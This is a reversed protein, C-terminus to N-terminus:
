RKGTHIIATHKTKIAKTSLDKKMNKTMHLIKLDKSVLDTMTDRTLFNNDIVLGKKMLANDIVLDKKMLTNDTVLHQRDGFGKEDFRQRDGFGKEDFRQRDGFGKEDFQQQDDFGKNDFRQRDGFGKDDFRKDHTQQQDYSRDGFGKDEFRKNSSKQDEQNKRNYSRNDQHNGYRKDHTRDEFKSGFFSQEDPQNEYRKDLPKDEFRTRGKDHSREREFSRGREHFKDEYNGGHQDSSKYKEGYRDPREIQYDNHPHTMKSSSSYKDHRSTRHEDSHRNDRQSDYSESHGNRHKRSSSRYKETTPLNATVGAGSIPRIGVFNGPSMPPTSANTLFNGPALNGPTNAIYLPNATTALPSSLQNYQGGITVIQGEYPLASLTLPSSTNSPVLTVYSSSQTPVRAGPPSNLVLRQSDKYQQGAYAHL